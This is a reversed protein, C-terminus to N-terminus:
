SIETAAASFSVNTFCQMVPLLKRAVTLPFVWLFGCILLGLLLSYAGWGVGNVWQVAGLIVFFLGTAALVPYASPEPVFYHPTGAHAASSM